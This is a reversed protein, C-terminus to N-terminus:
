RVLDIRVSPGSLTAEDGTVEATTVASLAHLYDGSAGETDGCGVLTTIVSPFMAGHSSRDAGYDNCDLTGSVADASVRLTPVFDLEDLDVPGDEVTVGAIRWSGLLDRGTSDEESSCSGTAVACLLALMTLVPVRTVRDIM